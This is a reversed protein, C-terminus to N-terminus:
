FGGVRQLELEEGERFVCRWWLLAAGAPQLQRALELLWSGCGLVRGLEM